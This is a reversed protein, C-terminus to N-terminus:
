AFYVFGKYQTPFFAHLIVRPSTSHFSNLHICGICPFQRGMGVLEQSLEMPQMFDFKEVM